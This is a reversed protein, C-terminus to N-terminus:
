SNAMAAPASVSPRVRARRCHEARRRFFARMILVTEGVTAGVAFGIESTEVQEGRMHLAWAEFAGQAM